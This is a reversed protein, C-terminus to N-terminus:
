GSFRVTVKFCGRVSPQSAKPIGEGVIVQDLSPCGTHIKVGRLWSLLNLVQLDYTTVNLQVAGRLLQKWHLYAEYISQSPEQTHLHVSRPYIQLIPIPHQANISDLRLM